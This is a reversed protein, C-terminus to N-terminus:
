SCQPLLFDAACVFRMMSSDDLQGLWLGKPTKYLMVFKYDSSNVPKATSYVGASLRLKISCWPGLPVKRFLFACRLVRLVVMYVCMYSAM